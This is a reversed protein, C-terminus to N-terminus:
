FDSFVLPVEAHAMMLKLRNQALYEHKCPLISDGMNEMGLPDGTKKGSTHFPFSVSLPRSRLLFHTLSALSFYTRSWHSAKEWPQMMTMLKWKRSRLKSNEQGYLPNQLPSRIDRLIERRVDTKSCQERVQLIIRSCATYKWWKWLHVQFISWGGLGSLYTSFM